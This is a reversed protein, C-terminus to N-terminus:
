QQLNINVNQSLGEKQQSSLETDVSGGDTLRGTIVERIYNLQGSCHMQIFRMLLAPLM